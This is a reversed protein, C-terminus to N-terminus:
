AAFTAQLMKSGVVVIHGDAERSTLPGDLNAGDESDRRLGNGAELLAGLEIIQYLGIALAYDGCRDIMDFKHAHNASLCKCGDM